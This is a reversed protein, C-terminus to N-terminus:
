ARQDLSWKGGGRTAIFLFLFAYVVALEGQNVAPWFQAGFQFKWHFQMYAVAMMGSLIFATLRTQIGVMLAVGGVLELLGGFWLQSGVPPRFETLIGLIKQAGHFSFLLGAVIRLLAYAQETYRELWTM